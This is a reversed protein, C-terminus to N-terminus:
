KYSWQTIKKSSQEKLYDSWTWSDYNPHIISALEEKDDSIALFKMLGFAVSKIQRQHYKIEEYDILITQYAKPSAYVVNCQHEPYAMHYLAMQRKNADTPKSPMRGTTKLDIITEEFIFDIYGILPVPLDEFTIEIKKQYDVMNQFDFHKNLINCYEKLNEKEKIRREDDVDILDDQCLQEFKTGVVELDIEWAEDTYKQSLGFETATGRHMSASGKDRVGFLKDAIFRAPDTLWTNISSHSLHHIGHIAFPNNRNM